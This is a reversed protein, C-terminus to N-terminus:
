RARLARWSRWVVSLARRWDWRRGGRWSVRRGPSGGEAPIVVPAAIPAAIPVSPSPPPNPVDGVPVDVVPGGTVSDFALQVPMPDAAVVAVGALRPRADREREAAALTAMVHHAALPRFGPGGLERLPVPVLGWWPAGTAPRPHSIRRERAPEDSRSTGHTASTIGYPILLHEDTLWAVQVGAEALARQDPTPRVKDHHDPGDPIRAPHTGAHDYHPEARDHIWWHVLGDGHRARAAEVRAWRVQSTMLRDPRELVATHRGRRLVVAPALLWPEAVAAPDVEIDGGVGPLARTLRDLLDRARALDGQVAAAHRAPKKCRDPDVGGPGHRFRPTFSEVTTPACFVLPKGCACCRYRGGARGRPLRTAADPERSLDIIRGRAALDIAFRTLLLPRPLPITTTRPM